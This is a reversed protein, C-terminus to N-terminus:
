VLSQKSSTNKSMNETGNEDTRRVQVVEREENDREGHTEERRRASVRSSNPFFTKFHHWNEVWVTRSFKSLSKPSPSGRPPAARRPAEHIRDARTTPGLIPNPRAEPGTSEHGPELDRVDMELIDRLLDERDPGRRSLLAHQVRLADSHM